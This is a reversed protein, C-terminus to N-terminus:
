PPAHEDSSRGELEMSTRPVAVARPLDTQNLVHGLGSAAAPMTRRFAPLATIASLAQLDRELKTRAYTDLWITRAAADPLELTPTPFGGQRAGPSRSPHTSSASRSAQISGHGADVSGTGAVIKTLTTV